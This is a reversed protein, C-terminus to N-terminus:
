HVDSCVIIDLGFFDSSSSSNGKLERLVDVLNTNFLCKLLGCVRISRQNLAIKKIYGQILNIIKMSGDYKELSQCLKFDRWLTSRKNVIYSCLSFMVDHNRREQVIQKITDINILSPVTRGFDM